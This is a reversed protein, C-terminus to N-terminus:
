KDELNIYISEISLNDRMFLFGALCYNIDGPQSQYIKM